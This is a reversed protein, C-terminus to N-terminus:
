KRSNTKTCWTLDPNLGMEAFPEPLWWGANNPELLFEYVSPDAPQLPWASVMWSLLTSAQTCWTNQPWVHSHGTLPASNPHWIVQGQTGTRGLAAPLVIQGASPSKPPLHSSAGGSVLWSMILWGPLAGPGMRQVSKKDREAQLNNTKRASNIIFM